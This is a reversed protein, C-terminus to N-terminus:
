AAPIYPESDDPGEPLVPAETPPETPPVTEGSGGGSGAETWGAPWTSPDYPDFKEWEEVTPYDEPGPWTAPDRPDVVKPTEPAM